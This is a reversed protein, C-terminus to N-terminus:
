KTHSCLYLITWSPLQNNSTFYYLLEGLPFLNFAQFTFFFLFFVLHFSSFIRTSKRIAKYLIMWPVQFSFNFLHEIAWLFLVHGNKKKRRTIFSFSILLFVKRSSFHSCGLVCWNCCYVIHIKQRMFLQYIKLFESRQGGSHQSTVTPM